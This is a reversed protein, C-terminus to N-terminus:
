KLLCLKFTKNNTIVIYIGNTLNNLDNSSDVKSNYILHGNFTYISIIDNLNINDMSNITETASVVDKPNKDTILFRTKTDSPVHYFTYTENSLIDVYENTIIDYLYLKDYSYLKDINFTLTYM